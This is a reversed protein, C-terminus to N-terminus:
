WDEKLENFVLMKSIMIDKEQKSMGLQNKIFEILEKRDNEKEVILYKINEYEFKLWLDQCKIIGESYSAYAKPNLHNPPILLPLETTANNIYPIFRWEKEDHFNMYEYKGNRFMQGALPKMFLLQTSLYNSHDSIIKKDEESANLSKEFVIKYDNVLTSKPNVYQIPQIGQSIGWLKNLGIGYQGYFKMHPVLKNLHIDCFCAMPFAIKKHKELELYDIMEENYRPIIAKYRISDKLYDINTIFRFLANASQISPKYGTGVINVEPKETLTILTTNEETLNAM